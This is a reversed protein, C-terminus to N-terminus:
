GITDQALLEEVVRLQKFMGDISLRYVELVMPVAALRKLFSAFWVDHTFPGNVDQRGDNDSLHLCGIFPELEDPYCRPDKRFTRATVKAHGMDLLLRVGSCCIDTFFNKIEDVDALLMPYTGDEAMNEIAVVNNEVLLEVNQDNAYCALSSITKVFTEYAEDRPIRSETSLRAQRRPNGLDEPDFDMTFGAHFSYFPAKLRACLDIANKCHTVSRHHIGSDTSALNLVFPVLPPPFYNHVLFRIRNIAGILSDLMAPSFPVSSSLEVNFGNELSIRIIEELNSNRFAGTSLYRSM